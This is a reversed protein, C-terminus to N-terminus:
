DERGYLAADAPASYIELPACYVSWIRWFKRRVKGAAALLVRSLMKTM